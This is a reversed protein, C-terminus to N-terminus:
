RLPDDLPVDVPILHGGFADAVIADAKAADPNGVARNPKRGFVYLRDGVGLLRYLREADKVYMNVCGGSGSEFLDKYTGHLAQGGNFFQSFPMPAGDYVTSFFTRNKRYIRQWGTRTELGPRGSRVPVPRFVVKTGKQVWLIQRSLDVCTVRYTRVPCRKGANPNRSADYVLTYRYTKLDPFGNAPTLKLDRQVKRIAVCDAQSMRGDVPLGLRKELQRQYPGANATCSEAPASAVFSPAAVANTPGAQLLGTALM